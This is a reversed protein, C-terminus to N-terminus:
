YKEKVHEPREALDLKKLYQIFVPTKRYARKTRVLAGKRVLLSIFERAEERQWGCWDEFDAPEIFDRTLMAEVLDKPYPSRAIEATIEKEDRLTEVSKAATTLGDYGFSDGKYVRELTQATYTVHCSRVLLTRANDTSYTRAALSASLRMLKALMSGRDIIPVVDTFMRCLRDVQNYAEEMADRLFEVEDSSRTWCWTILKKCRESTYVHRVEGQPRQTSVTESVDASAVILCADFRRVDEPNGILESIAQIGFTYSSMPRSSRPNSLALLRTRALTTRNEIKPIEAIGSSRMDTLKSIVEIEAGKLEELIVLRKDNRPITGWTVFFRGDLRQVGGLLGAVTANKCEVKTGMQYHAQLKSAIQSKGQASDGLILIEVWGKQDHGDIKILLPSHWCLDCFLHLDFREWIRTVNVSLDEYLSQLRKHLGEVTWEKPQFAVLDELGTPVFGELDDAIPKYDSALLLVQQNKPNPVIRGEIEYTVNINVPKGICVTPVMTKETDRNSIDLTPSIRIDEVHYYEQPEFKVSKCEEPIGLADMTCVRQAKNNLGMMEILGVAEPHIELNEMDGSFLPCRSCHEGDDRSCDASVIRPLIYPATDVAAVTATLNVRKNTWNAHVAQSLTVKEPSEYDDKSPLLVTPSWEECGQIVSWLDGKEEPGIFDNVDGTPYKDIDLPLLCDYVSLTVPKIQRMRKQTARRGADDIDYCVWVNKDRLLETLEKNWNEEGCTATLCGMNHPNLHMAGAIAKVEGGVLLIDEYELQDIPFFRIKGHGRTNKVKNGGPAGPLYRRVNVWSGNKNAVPITIRGKHEGLRYKRIAEHTVGRAILAALLGEAKWIRSHHGEIVNADITKEQEFDYRTSLEAIVAARTTGLIKGILSVIDGKAGCNGSHCKFLRKKVSVSCSPRREEHFPCCIRVNEQDAWEYEISYRELENLVSIVTLSM